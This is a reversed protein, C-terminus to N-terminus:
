KKIQDKSLFCYKKDLLIIACDILYGALMIGPGLYFEGLTYYYDPSCIYIFLARDLDKDMLFVNAYSNIMADKIVSVAEKICKVLKMDSDSKFKDINKYFKPLLKSSIIHSWEYDEYNLTFYSSYTKIENREMTKKDIIEYGIRDNVCRRMINKTTMKKANEEFEGAYLHIYEYDWYESELYYGYLLNFVKGEDYYGIHSRDSYCGSDILGEESSDCFDNISRNFYIPSYYSKGIIKEIGCKVYVAYFLKEAFLDTTYCDMSCFQEMNINKLQLFVKNYYEM